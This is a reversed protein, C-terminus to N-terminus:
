ELIIARILKTLASEIVARDTIDPDDLLKIAPSALYATVAVEDATISFVRLGNRQRQRHRAVRAANGNLAEMRDSKVSRPQGHLLANRKLKM